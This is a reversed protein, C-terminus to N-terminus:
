RPDDAAEKMKKAKREDYHIAAFVDSKHLGLEIRFGLSLRCLGEDALFNFWEEISSNAVMVGVRSEHVDDSADEIKADPFRKLIAERIESDDCYILDSVTQKEDYRNSM